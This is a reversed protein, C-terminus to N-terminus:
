NTKQIRRIHQALHIVENSSAIVTASVIHRTEKTMDKKIIAVAASLKEIAEKPSMKKTEEANDDVEDGGAHTLIRKALKEITSLKKIEEPMLRGQDQFSKTVDTTLDNLKEVSEIIKKHESELREIAIRSRMEPPLYIDQESYPTRDKPDRPQQRPPSGPDPKVASNQAVAAVSSCLIFIVLSLLKKVM